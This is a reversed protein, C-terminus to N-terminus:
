GEWPLIQLYQRHFLILLIILLPKVVDNIAITSDQNLYVGIGIFRYQNVVSDTIKGLHLSDETEVGEFYTNYFDEVIQVTKNELENNLQKRDSSIQFVTFGFAVVGVGM